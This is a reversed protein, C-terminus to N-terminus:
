SIHRTELIAFYWIFSTTMLTFSIFFSNTTVGRGEGLPGWGTREKMQRCTPISHTLHSYLCIFSHIFLHFFLSLYAKIYGRVPLSLGLGPYNKFFNRLMSFGCHLAAQGQRRFWIRLMYKFFSSIRLTFSRERIRFILEEDLCPAKHM